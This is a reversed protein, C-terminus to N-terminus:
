PKGPEEDPPEYTAAFDAILSIARLAANYEGAELSQRLVERAAEICWGRMLDDDPRGAQQLSDAVSQAVEDVRLQPWYHAIAQAIDADSQGTLIWRLVQAGPGPYGDADPATLSPPTTERSVEAPAAAAAPNARRDKRQAPLRPQNSKRAM